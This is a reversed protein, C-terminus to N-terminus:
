VTRETCRGLVSHALRCTAFFSARVAFTSPSNGRWDGVSFMARIEVVKKMGPLERMNKLAQPVEKPEPVYIHM